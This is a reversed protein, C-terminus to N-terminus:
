HGRLYVWWEVALLGFGALGLLFWVEWKVKTSIEEQIEKQGLMLHIVPKVQSERGSHYNVALYGTGSNDPSVEELKYVGPVWDTTDVNLPFPPGLVEKAGDPRYLNVQEVQAPLAIDLPTGINVELNNIGAPPALWDAINQMLIPFATRLPLDSNHLDFGFVVAKAEGLSGAAILTRDGSRLLPQWNSDPRLSKSQAIHVDAWTVNALLHATVGSANNSIRQEGGQLNATVASADGEALGSEAPPNFVLLQGMPPQTPWFGDLVYLEFQDVVGYYDAPKVKHVELLPNLKLAQELFTNGNSVLLVKAKETRPPVLWAANDAALADDTELRAELFAAGAPVPWFLYAPEEPRVKVAQVDLSNGDALLRVPVEQEEDGFNDIRALAVPGDAGDRMSFAGLALNDQRTGVRQYRFEKVGVPGEPPAVEGDSYFVVPAMTGKELLAAVLSLTNDLNAEYYGTQLAELQQLVESTNDSNNILTQPVPGVGILTFRTGKVQSKILKTAEAKALDLRTGDHEQVAMSLSTDVLLIFHGGGAQDRWFFPRALSLVLLLMLVIQLLLLLSRRLKQWPTQAITDALAKHWLFTSSVTFEEKKQKLLYFVIILPILLLFFLATPTLMQLPWSQM